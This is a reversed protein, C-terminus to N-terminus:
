LSNKRYFPEIDDSYLNLGIGFPKIVMGDHRHPHSYFSYSKPNGTGVWKEYIYRNVLEHPMPSVADPATMEPRCLNKVYAPNAWWFNGSFHPWPNNKFNVGVVDFNPLLPMVDRWRDITGWELFHRWSNLARFQENSCNRLFYSIGKTHLYCVGRLDSRSKCEDYLHGITLGEFKSNDETSEIVKVWPYLSLFITLERFLPSSICCFVDAVSPLGSRYIRKIQEDVLLRSLNFDGPSWVHYFIVLDKKM